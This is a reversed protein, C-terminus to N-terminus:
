SACLTARDRQSQQTEQVTFYCQVFSTEVTLGTLRHCSLLAATGGDHRWPLLHPSHLSLIFASHLFPLSTLCPSYVSSSSPPFLSFSVSHPPWSSPISPSSVPFALTLPYLPVHPFQQPMAISHLRPFPLLRLTAAHVPISHLRPFPLLRLHFPLAFVQWFIVIKCFNYNQGTGMGLEGILSYNASARVHVTCPKLM